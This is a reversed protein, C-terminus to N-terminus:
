PLWPPFVIKGKKPKAQSRRRGLYANVEGLSAFLGQYGVPKGWPLRRGAVFDRPQFVDTVAVVAVGMPRYEHTGAAWATEGDLWLAFAM